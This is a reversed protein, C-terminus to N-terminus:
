NNFAKGPGTKCFGSGKGQWNYRYGAAVGARIDIRYTSCARTEM